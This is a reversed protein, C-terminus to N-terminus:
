KRIIKIYEDIINDISFMNARTKLVMPDFPNELAVVIAQALATIDGVPVLQGFKGNDLIERPGSPCDTAVVTTGCAMAEILTNPLGEYISSLVFVQSGSIYPYPNLVYGPLEVDEQLGLKHVLAELMPREQGEGLIMLRAARIRRVIDFAHILATFGKEKGLRGVGLIVPVRQHKFWPHDISEEAKALMNPTVTPNYVVSVREEPLKLTIALDQAANKSNAILHDARPYFLRILSRYFRNRLSDPPLYESVTGSERLIVKVSVGSLVKAWIAVLTGPMVSAILCAPQEKRLYSILAPLAFEGRRSNRLRQIRVEPPLEDLLMQPGSPEIVLIDVSVGRQALGQALNLMIREAGGIWNPVLTPVYLAVPRTCSDSIPVDTKNISITAGIIKAFQQTTNHIDYDAVVRRFQSSIRLEDRQWQNLLTKLCDAIGQINDPAVTPCELRQLLNASTSNSPTIGLIPKEFTLYEVLKSPLFVNDIDGASDIVLLADAQASWQTSEIYPVTGWFHVIESLGLKEVLIKHQKECRGVFHVQLSRELSPENQLLNLAELFTKPNRPGYLNGTHVLNLRSKKERQNKGSFTIIDTDFGHPVVYAKERWGPPYKKMVLDLTAQSVFVVSDAERIVKEEMRRLIQRHWAPVNLFPSDVWPDSFHAIWPLGSQRHLELGVLHDSWPQAFSVIASFNGEALIKKAVRIAGGAWVWKQDPFMMLTPFFYNLIRYLSNGESSPVQHEIYHTNYVSLLSPDIYAKKGSSAPAVCIVTSEWGFEKLSKLTRAVQISRPFLLPPMAWSVALLQNM